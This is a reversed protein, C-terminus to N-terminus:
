LKERLLDPRDHLGGPLFTFECAVGLREAAARYDKALVACSVVHVADRKM